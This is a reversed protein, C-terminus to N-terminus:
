LVARPIFLVIDPIFVLAAVLALFPLAEKVYEDIECDLLSCVTYMAVGVPPTM